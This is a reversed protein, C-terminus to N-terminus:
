DHYALLVGKRYSHAFDLLTESKLREYEAKGIDLSRYLVKLTKKQKQPAIFLNYFIERKVDDLSSCYSEIMNVIEIAKAEFAGPNERLNALKKLSKYSKLFHYAKKTTETNDIEMKYERYIQFFAFM